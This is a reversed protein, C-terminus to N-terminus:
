VHYHAYTFGLRGIQGVRRGKGRQTWVDMKETQTEIRARFIPEDTGPGSTYHLTLVQQDFVVLFVGTM